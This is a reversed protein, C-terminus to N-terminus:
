EGLGASVVTFLVFGATFSLISWRTDEASEHAESIMDEVAAVTLLGATFVLTGMKLVDSQDRLLYYALVAAAVVPIAFGASLMMRRARPINKDKMNAITAYGEPIDALIQGLALVFAISASVTSGTGILLGDSFLDMSVAIYIMWIGTRGSQNGGSDGQIKEVAAQIAVYALGGLGFAIAIVWASVKVLAEPMLEIAVVALVIGSAAHLAKSLRSPSTAFFEALLGGGFNGLAPFLALGIVTWVNDMPNGKLSTRKKIPSFNWTVDGGPTVLPVVIKITRNNLPAGVLSFTRYGLRVRM